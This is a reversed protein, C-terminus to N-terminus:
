KKKKPTKRGENISKSLVKRLKDNKLHRVIAEAADDTAMSTDVALNMPEREREKHKKKKPKDEDKKKKSSGKSSFSVPAGFADRKNKDDKKPKKMKGPRDGTESGLMRDLEKQFKPDGISHRNHRGM